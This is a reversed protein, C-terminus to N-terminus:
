SGQYDFKVGAGTLESVSNWNQFATLLYPIQEPKFDASLIYVKVHANAAWTWFGIPPAAQGIRCPGSETATKTHADRVGTAVLLSLLLIPLVLNVRMHRGRYQNTSAAGCFCPGISM